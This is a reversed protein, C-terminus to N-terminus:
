LRSMLVCCEVHESNVDTLLDPRKYTIVFENGFKGACAAFAQDLTTEDSAPFYAGKGNANSMAIMATPDHGDGFGITLLTVDSSRLKELIQDRSLDSGKGQNKLERSDAGDAFVVIFANDMGNLMSLAKATADYLSTGGSAKLTDLAKLVTEKGSGSHEKVNQEFSVLRINATDPLGQVFRKAADITPQMYNKMSGSTDIVLVVNVSATQRVIDLIEAKANGETITINEKEPFVDRKLPDNILISVEGTDGNDKNSNITISGMNTEFSGYQSEMASYTSKFEDPLIVETLEGGNVPVMRVGGGGGGPLNARINYYGPPLHFITNGDGDVIGNYTFGDEHVVKSIGSQDTVTASGSAGIVKISGFRDSIKVPEITGTKEVRITVSEPQYKGSDFRICWYLPEDTQPIDDLSYRRCEVSVLDKSYGIERRLLGTRTDQWASIDAEANDGSIEAFMTLFDGSGALTTFYYCNNTTDSPRITIIKGVPLIDQKVVFLAARPYELNDWVAMGYWLVDGERKIFTVTDDTNEYLTAGIEQAYWRIYNTTLNEDEIRMEWSEGYVDWIIQSTGELYYMEISGSDAPRHYVYSYLSKSGLPNVLPVPIAEWDNAEGTELLQFDVGPKGILDPASQLFGGLAPPEKAALLLHSPISGNGVPNATPPSVTANPTQAGTPTPTEGAAADTDRSSRMSGALLIGVVTLVIVAAVSAVIIVTKKKM